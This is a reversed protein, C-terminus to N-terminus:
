RRLPSREGKLYRDWKRPRMVQRAQRKVKAGEVTKELRYGSAFSSRLRVAHIWIRDFLKEAASKPPRGRKSKEVTFPM